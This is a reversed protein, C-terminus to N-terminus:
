SGGTSAARLQAARDQLFETDLVCLKEWSTGGEGAWRVQWQESGLYMRYDLVDEIASSSAPQVAAADAAADAAAGAAAGAATDVAADAATDVPTDVAAYFNNRMTQINDAAADATATDVAATDVGGDSKAPPASIGQSALWDTAKAAAETTAAQNVTFTEAEDREEEAAKVEALTGGAMAGADYAVPVAEASGAAGEAEPRGNPWKKANEQKIKEVFARVKADHALTAAKSRVRDEEMEAETPPDTNEKQSKEKAQRMQAAARSAEEALGAGEYPLGLPAGSVAGTVLKDESPPAATLGREKLEKAEAKEIKTLVDQWMSRQGSPGFLWAPSLDIVRFVGSNIQLALADPLFEVSKYFFKFRDAPLAGAAVAQVASNVGGKYAGNGIEEAGPLMDEGHVMVMTDRGADGGLFVKSAAFPELAGPSLDEVTWPTGHNLLVGKTGKDDHQVILVLSELFYHDFNGPEAMVISGPGLTEPAM